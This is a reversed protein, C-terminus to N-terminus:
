SAILSKKESLDATRILEAVARINQGKRSVGHLTSLKAEGGGGGGEGRAERARESEYEGPM